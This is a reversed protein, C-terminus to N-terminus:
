HGFFFWVSATAGAWLSAAWGALWSRSLGLFRLRRDLDRLMLLFSATVSLGFVVALVTGSLVLSLLMAPVLVLLGRIMVMGLHGAFRLRLDRPLGLATFLALLLLVWGSGAAIVMQLAGRRPSEIGEIGTGAAVAAGFLATLILALGLLLAILALQYGPRDDPDCACRFGAPRALPPALIRRNFSFLRYLVTLPGRFLPRDLLRALPALIPSATGRLLWLLGPVGSRIEGSAPALVAMENRIGAADLRDATEASFDQLPQRIEGPLFRLAFASMRDCLPCDGDYVLIKGSSM